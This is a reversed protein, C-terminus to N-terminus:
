CVHRLFLLLTALMTPCCTLHGSIHGIDRMWFSSNLGQGSRSQDLEKCLFRFLISSPGLIVSGAVQFITGTPAGWNPRTWDERSYGDPFHITSHWSREKMTDELYNFTRKFNFAKSLQGNSVCKENSIWAWFTINEGVNRNCDCSWKNYGIKEKNSELLPVCIMQFIPTM